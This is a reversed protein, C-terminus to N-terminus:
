LLRELDLIKLQSDKIEVTAMLSCEYTNSIGATSFIRFYHSDYCSYDRLLSIQLETLGELLAIDESSKFCVDDDTGAIKDPGTRYGDILDAAQEDLGPLASIIIKSATNINIKGDGYVTFIDTLGYDLVSDGNDFPLKNAGDSENDNLFGDRNLDEGIYISRTVGKVFLLEKLTVFPANKSIYPSELWQYYDTEAGDPNTDNDEDFWDLISACCGRGIFNM